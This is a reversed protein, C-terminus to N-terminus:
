YLEETVQGYPAEEYSRYVAKVTRPYRLSLSLAGNEMRKWAVTISGDPTPVTGSAERFSGPDIRVEFCRFGPEVPCIGLTMKGYYWTHISSWAHCLSGAYGFAKEGEEVEWFTTAGQRIMALYKGDIFEKAFRRSDPSIEAM